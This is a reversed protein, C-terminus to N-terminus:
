QQIIYPSSCRNFVHNQPGLKNSWSKPGKGKKWNRPSLIDAFHDGFECKCYKILNMKFENSSLIDHSSVALTQNYNTISPASVGFNYNFRARYRANPM